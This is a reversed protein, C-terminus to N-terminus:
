EYAVGGFLADMFDGVAKETQEDAAAGLLAQVKAHAIMNEAADKPIGRSEMYFLEDERLRGITAGHEGSVDEEDCLIVPLSNNKASPSLLLTEEQENGTSGSCGNKFDIIGCYNKKGNGRLTGNVFMQCDTKRGNQAIVYQMDLLQNDGCLYACDSRFSAKYGSLNGGVGLYTKAGGLVIHTVEVRANEECFVDTEDAQVFGSGLLQIKVLRVTANRAAYVATRLSQFGGDNRGSSSVVVVKVAANEEARVLQASAANDGDSLTYELVLPSKEAACVNEGASVLVNEARALETSVNGLPSFVDRSESMRCKQIDSPNESYLVGDSVGRVVPKIDILQEPVDVTERDQVWSWTPAYLNNVPITKTKMKTVTEM